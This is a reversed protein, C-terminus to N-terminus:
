FRIHEDHIHKNSHFVRLFKLLKEGEETPFNGSGGCEKCTHNYPFNTKGLGKCTNCEIMYDMKNRWANYNFKDDM